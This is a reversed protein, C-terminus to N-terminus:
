VWILGGEERQAEAGGRKIVRGRGGLIGAAISTLAAGSKGRESISVRREWRGGREKAVKTGKRYVRKRKGNLLGTVRREVAQEPRLM